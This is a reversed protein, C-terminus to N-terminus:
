NLLKKKLFKTIKELEDKDSSLHEVENKLRDITEQSEKYVNSEKIKEGLLIQM